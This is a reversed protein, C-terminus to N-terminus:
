IVALGLNASNLSRITRRPRWDPGTWITNQVCFLAVSHESQNPGNPYFFTEFTSKFNDGPTSLLQTDHTSALHLHSTNPYLLTLSLWILNAFM